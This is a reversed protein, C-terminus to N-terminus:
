PGTTPTAAASSPLADAWALAAPVGQEIMSAYHDGHDVRLYRTAPHAPALAAAFRDSEGVDVNADEASHFLFVPKTRLGALHRRPASARLAQPATWDLATLEDWLERGLRAEVDTVPNFAVVATVRPDDAGVRLALTAASSHGVALVRGRDLDPELELAITLAARANDLGAGAALFARVAAAIEDDDPQDDVAGDLSYAVVVYGRAVWPLREPHRENARESAGGPEDALSAGWILPTGAPAILVVPRATAPGPPRYIWVMMPTGRRRLALKRLVVGGEITARRDAVVAPRPPTAGAEAPVARVSPAPGRCGSAALTAVVAAVLGGRAGGGPAM